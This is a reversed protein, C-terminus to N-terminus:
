LIKRFLCAAPPSSTGGIKWKSQVPEVYGVTSPPLPSRPSEAVSSALGPTRFSFASPGSNAFRLRGVRIPYVCPLAPADHNPRSLVPPGPDEATVTLPDHGACGERRFWCPSGREGKSRHRHERHPHRAARWTCPPSSIASTTPARSARRSEGLYPSPQSPTARAMTKSRPCRRGGRVALQRPRIELM